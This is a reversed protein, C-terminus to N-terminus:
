AQKIIEHIKVFQKDSRFSLVKSFSKLLDSVMKVCM